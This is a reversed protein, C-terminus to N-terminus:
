IMGLAMLWSPYGHECKGDPETVCGDVAECPIEDYVMQQIRDMPPNKLKERIFDNHKAAEICAEATGLAPKSQEPRKPAIPNEFEHEGAPIPGGVSWRKRHTSCMYAWGGEVTKGDVIAPVALGDKACFDCDPIKDMRVVRGM